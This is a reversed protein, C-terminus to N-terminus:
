SWLLLSRSLPLLVKMSRLVNKGNLGQGGGRIQGHYSNSLVFVSQESTLSIHLHLFTRTLVYYFAITVYCLSGVTHLSYCSYFFYVTINFNRM